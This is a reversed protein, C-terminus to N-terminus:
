KPGHILLELDKTMKGSKVTGVCAAGLKVTFGFTRHQWGGQEIKVQHNLYYSFHFIWNRFSWIWLVLIICVWRYFFFNIQYRHALGRTLAFTSAISNISTEGGRQHGGRQHLWYYHYSTVTGHAAEPKITKGDLCVGSVWSLSWM